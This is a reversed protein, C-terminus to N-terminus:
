PIMMLLHIAFLIMQFIQKKINYLIIKNKLIYIYIYIFVSLNYKLLNYKNYIFFHIYINISLGKKIKNEMEISYESYDKASNIPEITNMINVTSENNLISDLIFQSDENCNNQGGVETTKMDKKVTESISKKSNEKIPKETDSYSEETISTNVTDNHISETKQSNTSKDL